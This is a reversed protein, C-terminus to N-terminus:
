KSFEVLYKELDKPTLVTEADKDTVSIRHTCYDIFEAGVKIDRGKEEMMREEYYFINMSYKQIGKERFLQILRYIKELEENM